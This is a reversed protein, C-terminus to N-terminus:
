ALWAICLSLTSPPSALNMTLPPRAAACLPYATTPGSPYPARPGSLMVDNCQICVEFYYQLYAAAPLWRAVILQSERVEHHVLGIPRARDRIGTARLGVYWADPLTSLRTRGDRIRCYRSSLAARSTNYGGTCRSHPLTGMRRRPTSRVNHVNEVRHIGLKTHLVTIGTLQKEAGDTILGIGTVKGLQLKTKTV